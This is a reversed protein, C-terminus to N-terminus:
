RRRRRQLSSKLAKPAFWDTIGCKGEMRLFLDDVRDTMWGSQVRETPKAYGLRFANSISCSGSDYAFQVCDKKSECMAHCHQFSKWANSEFPDKSSSHDHANYEKDASMNDWNAVSAGIKPYVYDKFIDRHRLLVDHKSFWAQEFRWLNEIETPSVHHYTIVPFCWANRDIKNTTPDMTAPSDAQFHPFARHLPVKADELVKGLACDGVWHTATFEEYDRVHVSRQETVKRMAPNSLVFGAGGYGFEVDNIYLHKGIYYPKTADFHSLYELLNHWGLYTDTEIFVYWKANPAKRYAEDVMPLFKWKDLKWGDNETNLYDGKTSGSQATFVHQDNIGKRGQKQLQHYLKFDDHQQRRDATVGGLVDHVPHGEIEEDLDSFIVFNPVCRLTTQFHVPVKQRSETAGTRLVVLIDDAIDSQPCTLHEHALAQPKSYRLFFSPSSAGTFVNIISVSFVAAFILRCLFTRQPM